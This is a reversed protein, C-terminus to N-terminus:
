EYFNLTLQITKKIKNKNQKGLLKINFKRQKEKLIKDIRQTERSKGQGM